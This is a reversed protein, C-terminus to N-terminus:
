ILRVTLPYRFPQAESARVAAIIVSIVEFLALPPLLLFGVLIFMLGITIIWLILMMLQFNLAEKAQQRLFPSDTGKSLLLALPAVLRWPLM